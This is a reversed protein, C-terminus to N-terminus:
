CAFYPVRALSSPLSQAIAVPSRKVLTRPTVRALRPPFRGLRMRTERRIRSRLRSGFHEFGRPSAPKGASFLGSRSNRLFTILDRSRLVEPLPPFPVGVRGKFVQATRVYIETTAYKEHGAAAQIVRPDDGRLTRWTIGSARLDYLTIQKVTPTDEFLKQRDIGARKLHARFTDAWDEPPPMTAFLYDDPEPAAECLTRMLPMLEAEIPIYRVGAPTKTTDKQEDAEFSWARTLDILGVDLQIDKRQLAKLESPRVYTYALVAYMVRWRLPVSSCSLLQSFEAPYLWQKKKPKGRNPPLVGLCPNDERVRLKPAKSASAQKCASTFLAWINWARKWAFKYIRKRDESYWSGAKVKSDLADRVAECDAKTWDRPHKTGLVPLIHAEYMVKVSTLGHEDRYALYTSWWDEGGTSHEGLSKSTLGLKQADSLWFLRKEELMAESMDAPYTTKVRKYRPKPGDRFTLMIQKRGGRAAVVRATILAETKHRAM